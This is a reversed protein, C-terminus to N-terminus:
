ESVKLKSQQRSYPSQAKKTKGTQTSPMLPVHGLVPKQNQNEDRCIANESSILLRFIFAFIM